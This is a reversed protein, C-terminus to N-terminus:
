RSSLQGLSIQRYRRGPCHAAGRSMPTLPDIASRPMHYGPIGAAM